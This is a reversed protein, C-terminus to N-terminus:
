GGGGGLVEFVRMEGDIFVFSDRNTNQEMKESSGTERRGTWLSTGAFASDWCSQEESGIRRTCIQERVRAGIYHVNIYIYLYMNHTHIHTRTHIHQVHAHLYVHTHIHVHM